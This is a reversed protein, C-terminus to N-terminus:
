TNSAKMGSWDLVKSIRPAFDTCMRCGPEPENDFRTAVSTSQVLPSPVILFGPLPHVPNQEESRRVRRVSCSRMPVTCVCMKRVCRNDKAALAVQSVNLALRPMRVDGNEELGLCPPIDSIHAQRVWLCAIILLFMSFDREKDRERQRERETERERQRDRETERGGEMCSPCCYGSPTRWDSGAERTRPPPTRAQVSSM